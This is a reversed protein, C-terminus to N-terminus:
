KVRPYNHTRWIIKTLFIYYIALRNIKKQTFLFFEIKHILIRKAEDNLKNLIYHISEYDKNKIYYLLNHRFASKMFIKFAKNTSKAKYYEKTVINNFLINDNLIQTRKLVSTAQNQVNGNYISLPIGIYTVREHLAIRFIFTFDENSKQGEIFKGWTNYNSKLISSRLTTSSIHFYVHPNQFFQIQSIKNFYKVPINYTKKPTLYNQSYRGTIIISNNPYKEIAKQVEELYNPLWEDDGDLFSIWEGRSEEIGKNRAASVGANKQNIIRIRADDFNQNIIKVSNDTSGDNIIVIEFNSYTQKFVSNLTNVITQEKNYLPIVISIMM